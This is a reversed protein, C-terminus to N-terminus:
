AIRLRVLRLLRLVYQQNRHQRRSRHQRLLMEFRKALAHEIIRNADFHEATKPRVGLLALNQFQQAVASHIYDDARMAENRAVDNELIETQHHDVFLLAEANQM